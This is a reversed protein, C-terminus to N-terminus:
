WKIGTGKILNKMDNRSRQYIHMNQDLSSFFLSTNKGILKAGTETMFNIHGNRPALYWWNIDTSNDCLLTSFLIVGDRDLFSVMDLITNQINQSHEVVEIATILKFKKTPRINFSFPDYATSNWGYEKLTEVM